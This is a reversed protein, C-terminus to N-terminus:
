DKFSDSNIEFLIDDSSRFYYFMSNTKYDNIDYQNVRYVYYSDKIDVKESREGIIHIFEVKKMGLKIQTKYIQQSANKVSENMEELSTKVSEIKNTLDTVNNYVRCSSIFFLIMLVTLPKKMKTM